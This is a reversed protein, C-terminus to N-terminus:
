TPRMCVGADKIVDQIWGLSGEIRAYVGLFIIDKCFSKLEILINKGAFPSACGFGFSVVGVIEYTSPM